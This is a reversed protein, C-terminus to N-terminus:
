MARQRGVVWLGAVVGVIAAVAVTSWMGMGRRRRGDAVPAEDTVTGAEPRGEAAQSAVPSPPPTPVLPLRMGCAACCAALGAEGPPLVARKGCGPCEVKVAMPNEQTIPPPSAGGRSVARPAFSTM